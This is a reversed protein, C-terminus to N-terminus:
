KVHPTIAPSTGAVREESAGSTSLSHHTLPQTDQYLPQERIMWVTAANVHKLWWNSFAMLPLSVLISFIFVALAAPFAGAWLYIASGVSCIILVHVLYIPFSLQGLFRSIRGSFLRRIPPFTEIVAILIAAGVVHVDGSHSMLIPYYFAAYIGVHAGSFGLFYLAMLLAPYAIRRPIALGRPVLAALGVGIPFAVLSAYSALVAAMAILGITLLLSSKRAAFLIPAFGFAIFSGIFEPYMTWISSDYYFDGRFFTLFAGQLLADLFQIPPKIDYAYGFKILWPSGSVAGAQEFRYLDLKFLVYSALVVLLVPGMLRPWRKVAGKLLIRNDGLEFYHRSLVYGSLVFFLAVAAPGNMFVFLPTGEWNQGAIKRYVGISNPFFGYCLHWVVVVLAAIGRMAELPVDKKM